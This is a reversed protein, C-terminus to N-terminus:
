AVGSGSSQAIWNRSWYSYDLGLNRQLVVEMATMLGSIQMSIQDNHMLIDITYLKLKHLYSDCRYINLIELVIIIESSLTYSTFFQQNTTVYDTRV